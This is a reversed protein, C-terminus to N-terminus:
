VIFSVLPVFIHAECLLSTGEQRSLDQPKILGSSPSGTSLEVDVLISLAQKRATTATARESKTNTGVFLPFLRSKPRTNDFINIYRYNLQKLM